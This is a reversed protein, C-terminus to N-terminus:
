CIQIIFEPIWYKTIRKNINIVAVCYAYIEDFLENLATKEVIKWAKSITRRLTKYNTLNKIIYNNQIWNKMLNWLSKILNLNPSFILSFILLVEAKDFAKLTSKVSYDFVHNQM